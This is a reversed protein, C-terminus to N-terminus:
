PRLHRELEAQQVLGAFVQTADHAAGWGALPHIGVDLGPCRGAELRDRHRADDAFLVLRQDIAAIGHGAGKGAVRPIFEHLAGDSLRGILLQLAGVPHELGHGLIVQRQFAARFLDLLIQDVHVLSVVNGLPLFEHLPHRDALEISELGADLRHVTQAVWVGCRQGFQELGDM